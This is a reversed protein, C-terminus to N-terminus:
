TIEYPNNLTDFRAVEILQKRDPHFEYIVGAETKRSEAFRTSSINFDDDIFMPALSNRFLYMGKAGNPIYQLCSFSGDIDHPKGDWIMKWLLLKSDWKTDYDFEEHLALITSDKLIGNHWLFHGNIEAPHINVESKDEGTPAQMHIVCYMGDKLNQEDIDDYNIEGFTKMISFFNHQEFNYYSISHSFTGRYKNLECLEILKDKSFSGIISCM